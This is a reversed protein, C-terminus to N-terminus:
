KIDGRFIFTVAETEEMPVFGVSRYFLTTKETNDTTLIIQRMDKATELVRKVLIQGIGQRQYDPHVLIDQIYLIYCGDGVARVLGVLEDGDWASMHTLAGSLLKKMIEPYDTYGTWGVSEQVVGM